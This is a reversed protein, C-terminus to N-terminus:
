KKMQKEYESQYRICDSIATEMKLSLGQLTNVDFNNLPCGNGKNILCNVTREQYNPLNGCLDKTSQMLRVKQGISEMLDTKNKNDKFQRISILITVFTFVVPLIIIVFIMGMIRLINVPREQIVISGSIRDHFTQKEPSFFYMLEGVLLPLSIFFSILERIIVKMWTIKGGNTSIVKIGFIGKGITKGFLGTTIIRYLVYCFTLLTSLEYKYKQVVQPFGYLLLLALIILIDWDILFATYRVLFGAYAINNDAKKEPGGSPIIVPAPILQQEIQSNVM